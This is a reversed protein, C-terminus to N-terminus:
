KDISTNNQVTDARNRSRKFCEDIGILPLSANSLCQRQSGSKRRFSSLPPVPTNRKRYDNCMQKRSLLLWFNPEFVEFNLRITLNHSTKPRFLPFDAQVIHKIGCYTFLCYATKYLCAFVQWFLLQLPKIINFHQNESTQRPM